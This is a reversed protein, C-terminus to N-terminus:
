AANVRVWFSITTHYCPFRLQICGCWTAPAMYYFVTHRRTTMTKSRLQRGRRTVSWAVQLCRHTWYLQPGSFSLVPSALGPAWRHAQPGVDACSDSHTSSLRFPNVFAVIPQTSM